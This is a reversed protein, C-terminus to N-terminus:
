LSKRIASSGWSAQFSEDNVESVVYHINVSSATM